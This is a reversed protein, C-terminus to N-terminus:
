SSSAEALEAMLATNRQRLAEIEVLALRVRRDLGLSEHGDAQPIGHRDLLEHMTVIVQEAWAMPGIRGCSECRASM